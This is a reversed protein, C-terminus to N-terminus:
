FCCCTISALILFFSVGHLPIDTNDEGAGVQAVVVKFLDEGTTRNQNETTRAQIYFMAEENAAGGELLGPGYMLTWRASTVPFFTFRGFTTTFSDGGISVRVDVAGAGYHQFDPTTVTLKSSNVYMGKADVWGRKSMFRVVVQQDKVFDIGQIELVTGGTIPGLQPYVETVAYPPGVISLVDLGHVDSYWQSEWGGFVVLKSLTPDFEIPADSRPAPLKGKVAPYYWRHNGTDLICLENTCRGQKEDENIQGTKGGFVFIKYSPIAMVAVASHNWRCDKM